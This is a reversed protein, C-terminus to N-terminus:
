CLGFQLMLTFNGALAFEVGIIPKEINVSFYIREGVTTLASDGLPADFSNDGHTL